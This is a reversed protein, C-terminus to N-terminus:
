RETKGPKMTAKESENNSPREAFAADLEECWVTQEPLRQWNVEVFLPHDFIDSYDRSGLRERPNKVLLKSLYNKMTTMQPDSSLGVKDWEIDQNIIQEALQQSRFPLRGYILRFHVIGVSWWDSARGFPKNQHVEPAMYAETGAKDGSSFESATRNFYSMQHQNGFHSICVRNVDFDILKIRGDRMVLMNAPKIDRHVFGCLHLHEIAMMLQQMIIQTLNFSLAVNKGVLETLDMGDIAEMVTVSVGMPSCTPSITNNSQAINVQDGSPEKISAIFSCYIRCIYPHNPIVAGVMKDMFPTDGKPDNRFRQQPVLKVAVELEDKFLAKYVAGFAGRGLLKLPTFDDISPVFESFSRSDCLQKHSHVTTKLVSSITQWNLSIIGSLEALQRDLDELVAIFKQLQDAVPEYIEPHTRGLARILSILNVMCERLMVAKLTRKQLRTCIYRYSLSCQALAFYLIPSRQLTRERNQGDSLYVQLYAIPAELLAPRKEALEEIALRARSKHVEVTGTTGRDDPCVGGGAIISSRVWGFRRKRVGEVGKKKKEVNKGLLLFSIERSQDVVESGQEKCCGGNM